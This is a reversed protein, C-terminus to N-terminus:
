HNSPPNQALYAQRAATLMARVEIASACALANEALQRCRSLEIARVVEKITPVALLPVSLENVGLGL